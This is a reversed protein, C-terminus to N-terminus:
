QFSNSEEDFNRHFNKTLSYEVGISDIRHCSVCRHFAFPYLQKCNDCIYEFSLTASAKDKLHILVDFEFVNSRTSLEVDGRATYLDRLYTNQEIIDLNLDEEKLNWLLDVIRDSKSNDFNEWAMRPNVRFIYEFVLYALQHSENYMEIVKDIKDEQNIDVDNLVILTNLYLSDCQVDNNLECLPELVELAAKYDKMYEYVLLLTELAQPTRPNKRLIELLIHKSRELFGAKFYTKGLLYMIEKQNKTDLHNLMENYIEISKDYNGSKAYSSALLIWSKQSLEGMSVLGQLEDKTPLSRFQQLFKDLHKYDEKRQYRGWWYSLFTIMFILAFFIIVSFLPDRFELFFINM